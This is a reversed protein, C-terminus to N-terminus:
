RGLWNEVTLDKFRSFHKANGTVLIAAKSLCTAAILIDADPLLKAEKSLTSKLSGFREMIETDSSIVNVSLIFIEVLKRNESFRNSKYAGYFLEGITIFSIAVEAPSQKRKEIIRKNGRLIEICVDTDFLIM